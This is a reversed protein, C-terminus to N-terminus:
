SHRGQVAEGAYGQGGRRVSRMTSLGSAGADMRRGCCAAVRRGTRATAAFRYSVAYKFAFASM